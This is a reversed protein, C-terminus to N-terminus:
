AQRRLSPHYGPSQIQGASSASSTATTAPTTEATQTASLELEAASVTTAVVAAVLRWSVVVTGSGVGVAVVPVVGAVLGFGGGGGRACVGTEHGTLLLPQVITSSETGPRFPRAGARASALCASWTPM